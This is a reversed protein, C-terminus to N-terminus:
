GARVLSSGESFVVPVGPKKAEPMHEECWAVYEAIDNFRRGLQKEALMMDGLPTQGPPMRNLLRDSAMAYSAARMTDYKDGMNSDRRYWCRPAEKGYVGIHRYTRFLGGIVSGNLTVKPEYRSGSPYEIEVSHSRLLALDIRPDESLKM